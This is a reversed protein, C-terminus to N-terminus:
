VNVQNSTSIQLSIYRKANGIGSDRANWDLWCCPFIIRGDYKLHGVRFSEGIEKIFTIEPQRVFCIDVYPHTDFVFPSSIPRGILPPHTDGMTIKSHYSQADPPPNAKLGIWDPEVSHIM